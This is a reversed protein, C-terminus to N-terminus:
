WNDILNSSDKAKASLEILVKERIRGLEWAKINKVIMLGDNLGLWEQQNITLRM